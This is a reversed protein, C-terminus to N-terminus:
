AIRVMGERPNELTRSAQTAARHWTQIREQLDTLPIAENQHTRMSFVKGQQTRSLNAKLLAAMIVLLNEAASFYDGISTCVEVERVNGHKILEALSDAVRPDTIPTTIRVTLEKINRAAEFIPIASPDPASIVLTKVSSDTLLGAIRQASQATLDSTITLETMRSGDQATAVSIINYADSNVLKTDYTPGRSYALRLVAGSSIAKALSNAAQTDIVDFAGIDLLSIVPPLELVFALFDKLPAGYARYVRLIDIHGPITIGVPEETTTGVAKRGTLGAGAYQCHWTTPGCIITFDVTGM